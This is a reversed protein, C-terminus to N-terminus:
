ELKVMVTSKRHGLSKLFRVLYRRSDVDDDLLLIDM